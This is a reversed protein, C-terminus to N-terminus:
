SKLIDGMSWLPVFVALIVWVILGMIIIFFLPEILLSFLKLKDDFRKKHINKIELAISELSNTVEGTKILSLVIDDFLGVSEFAYSISKGNQLLKEIQSIRDFVYQNNILIKGKNLATLFNYKSKLLIELIMFFSYFLNLKYLQSLIFLNKIFLKDIFFRIKENKKILFFLSIFLILFSLCITILHNEFIDKTTFLIKTAFPLQMNSDRLLPEFNPVVFKFIGILSFFFTTLLVMPYTLIKKFDKKIELNEEIVKYLFNINETPNGSEQVIKFISKIMPNIKFKEITKTIDTSNSFSNKLAKLFNRIQEKKSNKIAIEFAEDLLIKSNLMLSLEYLINKIEKDKITQEFNLNFDLNVKKIEIISKPLEENKIDDSTIYLKKLTGEEQYIIKYKNM